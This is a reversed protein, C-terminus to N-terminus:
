AYDRSAYGRSRSKLADFFDFIIEGLPLTYKLEVRDTSLYDMGTLTGRRGQCLEMVTGVFDTPLLLMANVVPEFVSAIKGKPWDSPNTVEVESSDEMVVRYVVNPATS